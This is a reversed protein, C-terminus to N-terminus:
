VFCNFVIFPVNLYMRRTIDLRLVRTCNLCVYGNAEHETEKNLKPINTEGRNNEKVAVFKPRSTIVDLSFVVIKM